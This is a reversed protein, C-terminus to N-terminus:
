TLGQGTSVRRKAISSYRRGAPLAGMNMGQKFLQQYENNSTGTDDAVDGGAQALPQGTFWVSAVDDPNGHKQLLEGMRATALEEQLDPSALYEEPTVERGLYQKSWPGVNKGMVQYKGLARDGAYMGGQVVVGKKSYADPAGRTEVFAIGQKVKEVDPSTISPSYSSVGGGRRKAISTYRRSTTPPM